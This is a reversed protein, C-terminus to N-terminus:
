ALSDSTSVLMCVALRADARHADTMKTAKEDAEDASFWGSGLRDIVAEAGRTDYDAATALDAATLRFAGVVQRSPVHPLMACVALELPTADLAPYEAAHQALHLIAAVRVDDHALFTPSTM